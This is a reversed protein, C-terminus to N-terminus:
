RTVTAARVPGGAKVESSENRRMPRAYRPARTTPVPRALGATAHHARGAVAVICVCERSRWRTGLACADSAEATPLGTQHCRATNGSCLGTERSPECVYVCVCCLLGRTDPRMDGARELSGHPRATRRLSMSASPHSAAPHSAYCSDRAVAEGNRQSCGREVACVSETAAADHGMVVCQKGPARCAVVSDSASSAAHARLLASGM